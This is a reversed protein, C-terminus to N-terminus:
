QKQKILLGQKHLEVAVQMLNDAKYYKRLAKFKRSIIATCGLSKQTEGFYYRNFLDVYIKLTDEKIM